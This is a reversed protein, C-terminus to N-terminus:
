LGVLGEGFGEGLGEALVAILAAADQPSLRISAACRGDRWSSVVVVDDHWTVQLARRGGRADPLVTSGWEPLAVLEGM